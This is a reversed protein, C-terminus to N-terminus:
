VHPAHCHLIRLRPQPAVLCVVRMACSSCCLSICDACLHVMAVCAELDLHPQYVIRADHILDSMDPVGQTTAGLQYTHNASNLGRWGLTHVSVHNEMPDLTEPNYRVLVNRGWARVCVCVCVCVCM